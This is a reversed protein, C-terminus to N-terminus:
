NQHAMCTHLPLSCGVGRQHPVPRTDAPFAEEKHVQKGPFLEQNWGRATLWSGPHLDKAAAQLREVVEEPSTCGVLNAEMLARGM